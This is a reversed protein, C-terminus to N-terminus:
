TRARILRVRPHVSERPEALLERMRARARHLRSKLTGIPIDKESALEELTYGEVDHWGILARQDEPLRQLAAALRQGSFAREAALEPSETTEDVIQMMIDAAGEPLDAEYAVLNPRRKLNLYLNMLSRSLWPALDEVERLRSEQPILKVLLSQVLDEADTPSGTFRYALRYLRELHPRVLSEFGDEPPRRSLGAFPNM